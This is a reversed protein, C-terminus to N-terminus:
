NGGKVCFRGGSFFLVDQLAKWVPNVNLNQKDRYIRLYYTGPARSAKSAVKLGAAALSHRLGSKTLTTSKFISNLSKGAIPTSGVANTMSKNGPRKSKNNNMNSRMKFCIKKYANKINLSYIYSFHHIKSQM